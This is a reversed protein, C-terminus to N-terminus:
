AYWFDSNILIPILNWNWVINLLHTGLGTIHSIVIITLKRLNTQKVFCNVKDEMGQSSLYPIQQINSFIKSSDPYKVYAMAPIKSVTNQKRIQNM